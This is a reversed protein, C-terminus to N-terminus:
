QLTIGLVKILFSAIFLSSHRSTYVRAPKMSWETVTHTIYKRSYLYKSSSCSSSMYAMMNWKINPKSKLTYTVKRKHGVFLVRNDFPSLLEKKIFEFEQASNVTLLNYSNGLSHCYESAMKWHGRKSVHNLKLGLM